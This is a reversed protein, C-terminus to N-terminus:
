LLRPSLLLRLSAHAHPKYALCNQNRARANELHTEFETEKKMQLTSQLM